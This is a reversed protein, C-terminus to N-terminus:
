RGLSPVWTRTMHKEQYRIEELARDSADEYRKYTFGPPNEDLEAVSPRRMIVYRLADLLHDNQKNVKDVMTKEVTKHTKGSSWHYNQFEYILNKCNDMILLKPKKVVAGTEPDKIYRLYEKVRYIGGERDNSGPVCFVPFPKEMLQDRVPKEMGVHTSCASKDIVCDPNHTKHERRKEHVIGKVGTLSADHEYVEDFVVLNGAGDAYAMVVGFTHFGPDYGELHFVDRPAPRWPIVHVNESFEKYILGERSIFEGELRIRRDDESLSGELRKLEDRPITKNERTPFRHIGIGAKPDKLAPRYLKHYVWTIGRVATMTILIEGRCTMGRMLCETFIDEKPEEDLWIFPIAAGQYSTRDAEFSKWVYETGNVLEVRMISGRPGYTVDKIEKRPMLQQFLPWFVDRNKEHSDSAIWITVPPKIHKRHPHIGLGIWVVEATGFFTKGARNGGSVLRIRSKDAHAVEAKGHLPSYYYIGEERKRRDKEKLLNLYRRKLDDSM